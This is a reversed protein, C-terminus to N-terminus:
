GLIQFSQRTQVRSGQFPFLHLIPAFSSSNDLGPM